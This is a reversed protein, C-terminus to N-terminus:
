EDDGLDYQYNMGQQVKNITYRAYQTSSMGLKPIGISLGILPNDSGKFKSILNQGLKEDESKCEKLNILYIILLPNRKIYKFYSKQNLTRANDNEEKFKIKVKEIEEKSLGYRGDNSSGLRRKKGSMRLVKNNSEISFSREVINVEENLVKYKYQSSGSAFAIDWKDLENNKYGKIFEEISDTDFADNIMSVEFSNLMKIIIEKNVNKFVVANGSGKEQIDNEKLDKILERIVINNSRNIAVDSYLNPTEIVEGSLNICVEMSSATRMKNRATVLLSNIDTRVRLGFDNPTSGSNEYKKIENRLEDTAVSIHEYWQISDEAMWIRCLDEYGKRYGFWRGMQMLTDYMKSNRYFYSIVLGELTLGRSLSLGGVAIVRLGNNEYEEYNLSNKNNQNVVVVTISVIGKYLADQIESWSYNLDGYNKKYAEYLEKMTKDKLSESTDTKGYLRATAQVDKLYNNIIVGVQNQVNTFRSINILMSRHSDVDGRLDRIVNAILFLNIAEKLDKPVDVVYHDSKHNSPLLCDIFDDNSANIPKLRIEKLMGKWKGNESFIDRAGIYNSPSNLSYIYDKPFLDEKVMSDNTDPDIFINAFPTATFGVYSAKKFVSLLERIQSNITTPNRDEPNTNVSANDSEDDIVLISNDIINYENQNFTKLWRNLHKLTSVNKKIVFLVPQNITTLNFGLNRASKLKFDDMTSTLVMPNITADYNGVGIVNNEKQKIMAASDMGVFGEDLRLQTQKRLKEITGTLLVIVKYGADAGKCILGTYNSTKGSQVDGIILGRRQFEGNIEPDGLLDTLTDLMTDMTNVVGTPFNSKELLYKKYREWYRLDLDAKRRLFWKEYKINGEIVTGLSLKISRESMIRKRVEEIDRDKLNDVFMPLEKFEEIINDIAIEENVSKSVIVSVILNYFMNAIDCM